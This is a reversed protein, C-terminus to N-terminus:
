ENIGNKKCLKQLDAMAEDKNTAAVYKQLFDSIDKKLINEKAKPDLEARIKCFCSDFNINKNSAFIREESFKPLVAFTCIAEDGNHINSKIFEPNVLAVRRKKIGNDVMMKLNDEFEQDKGFFKELLEKETM